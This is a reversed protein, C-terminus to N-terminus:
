RDNGHVGKGCRLDRHMMLSWKSDDKPEVGGPELVALEKNGGPKESINYIPLDYTVDGVVRQVFGTVIGPVDFNILGKSFFNNLPSELDTYLASSLIGEAKELGKKEYFVTLTKTPEDWTYRKAIFDIPETPVIYFTRHTMRGSAEKFWVLCQGYSRSTPPVTITVHKLFRDLDNNFISYFNKGDQWGINRNMVNKAWTNLVQRGYPIQEGPLAGEGLYTRGIFEPDNYETKFPHILGKFKGMGEGTIYYDRDLMQPNKWSQAAFTINSVYRNDRTYGLYLWAGKGDKSNSEVIDGFGYYMVDYELVGDPNFDIREPNRGSLAKTVVPFLHDWYTKRFSEVETPKEIPSQKEGLYERLERWETEWDSAFANGALLLVMAALLMSAIIKKRQM